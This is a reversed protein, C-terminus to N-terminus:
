DEKRATDTARLIQLCTLLDDSDTGPQTEENPPDDCLLRWAAAKDNRSRYDDGTLCRRIAWTAFGAAITTAIWPWNAIVWNGATLWAQRIEPSM